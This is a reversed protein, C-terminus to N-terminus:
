AGGGPLALGAGDTLAAADRAREVATAAARLAGGPDGDAATDVLLELYRGAEAELLADVRVLLDDRAKAALARIAQDGFIAELV